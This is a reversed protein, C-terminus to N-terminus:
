FLNTIKSLIFNAIAVDEVKGLVLEYLLFKKEVEEVGELVVYRENVIVGNESEPTPIPEPTPEPQSGLPPTDTVEGVNIQVTAPESTSTGDSVTYTFSDTGNFGELPTYTFSGDSTFSYGGNAPNEVVTASLRNGEADTNNAM